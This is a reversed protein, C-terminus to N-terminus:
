TEPLSAREPIRATEGTKEPELFRALFLGQAVAFVLILGMSGFLKFNVWVATSFSFAVYLNLAGMLTFFLAWSLNLRFWVAEPLAIQDRMMLRVANKRLFMAVGMSAAMIWYLVTPKWKIFTEDRLVLTMGGFVVVLALSVWLMKEVKGHRWRTWAIQLATAAIVVLTSILIPAQEPSTEGILRSAWESAREPVAGMLKFAAFFLIVPFLDFLLKM